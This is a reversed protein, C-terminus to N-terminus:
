VPALVGRRPHLARRLLQLPPRVGRHRLRLRARRGRAAAASLRIERDGPVVRGRRAQADGAGPGATAAPPAADPPRLGPGGPPRGRRGAGGQGAVCGGVGIVIEPRQKKLEKWFGLQTFVKEQAKARVSCTNLLLVDAQAPDDTKELGHSAALADAMRASDYENMQCGFTKIHLKRQM